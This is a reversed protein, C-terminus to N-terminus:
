RSSTAASARPTSRTSRSRPSARDPSARHDRGARRAAAGALREQPQARARRLRRDRELAANPDLRSTRVSTRTRRRKRQITRARDIAKWAIAPTGRVSHGGAGRRPARRSQQARTATTSTSSALQVRPTRRHRGTRRSPHRPVGAISWASSYLTGDHYDLGTPMTVQALDAHRGARRARDPRRNVPRLGAAPPRGGPRGRAGRVRLGHRAALGRRRDPRQLGGIM